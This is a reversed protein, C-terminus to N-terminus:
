LEAELSVYREEVQRAEEEELVVHRGPNAMKKTQDKDKWKTRKSRGMRWVMTVDVACTQTREIITRESM